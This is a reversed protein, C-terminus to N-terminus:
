EISLFSAGHAKLWAIKAKYDPCFQKVLTWFDKSHNRIRLHALEHIVVYDIVDPPAMVLRWTFSLGGRSSCSGWRTRASSIRLSTYGNLGSSRSLAQVRQSLYQTAQLRYWHIFQQAKERHSRAQLHFATGDWVLRKLTGNDSDAPTIVLPYQQGLYWFMEGPQYKIKQKGSYGYPFKRRMETQQRIIWDAKRHIFDEIQALPIQQPARVVLKAEPTVILAISKRRTRILEDIQIPKTQSMTGM